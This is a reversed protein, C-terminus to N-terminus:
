MRWGVGVVSKLDFAGIPKRDFADILGMMGGNRANRMMMTEVDMCRM